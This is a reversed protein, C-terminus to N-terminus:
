VVTFPKENYSNDEAAQEDESYEDESETVEGGMDRVRQRYKQKLLEEDYLCALADENELTLERNTTELAEVQSTLQKVKQLTEQLQKHLTRTKDLDEVPPIAEANPRSVSNLALELEKIRLRLSAIDTDQKEIVQKYSEILAADAGAAVPAELTRTHSNRRSPDNGLVTKTVADTSKLLFNVFLPDFYIEVMGKSDLGVSSDVVLYKPSKRIERCDKLRELGNLFMELGIRRSAIDVLAGQTFQLHSNDNYEILICLLFVSLGQLITTESGINARSSSKEILWQVVGSERLLIKVAPTFDFAWICLVQMFGIIIRIDVVSKDNACQLLAQACKSLLNSSEESSSGFSCDLLVTKVQRNGYLMQSLLSCAFLVRFPDNRSYEWDILITGIISGISDAADVADDNPNAIPESQLTSALAFQTEANDCLLSELVNLAAARTELTAPIRSKASRLAAQGVLLLAPMAHPLDQSEESLQIPEFVYKLFIAQNGSNRRILDAMAHLGTARVQPPVSLRVSLELLYSLLGSQALANQNQPTSPSKPACLIRFTQLVLDANRMSQQGWQFSPSWLMLQETTRMHADVAQVTFLPLLKPVLGSERFHNQNLINQRLLTHCLTLCDEIVIGGEVGFEAYIMDLLKPFVDQFVLIQQMEANGKSIEILLLLGENRLVEDEDLLAILVSPGNRCALICQQLRELCNVALINLLLVASYRAHFDMTELTSIIAGVHQENKLVVESFTVGIDNAVTGTKTDDSARCLICLTDLVANLTELDTDDQTLVKCIVQLGQSGVQVRMDKALGKLGLIAARRDELLAANNARDCLRDIILEPSQVNGKDGKLASYGKTFFDM